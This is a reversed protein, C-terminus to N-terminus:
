KFRNLVYLRFVYIGNFCWTNKNRRQEKPMLRANRRRINWGGPRLCDAPCHRQCDDLNTCGNIGGREPWQQAKSYIHTCAKPLRPVSRRIKGGDLARRQTRAAYLRTSYDPISSTIRHHALASNRWRICDCVVRYITPPAYPFRIRQRFSKILFGWPSAAVPPTEDNAIVPRRKRESQAPPIYSHKM